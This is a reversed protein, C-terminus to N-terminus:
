RPRSCLGDDHFCPEPRLAYHSAWTSRLCVYGPVFERALGFDNPYGAAAM